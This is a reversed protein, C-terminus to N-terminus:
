WRTKYYKVELNTVFDSVSQNAPNIKLAEKYSKISNLTDKTEFYTKGLLVHFLESNPNEKLKMRFFNIGINPNTRTYLDQLVEYPVTFDKKKDHKIALLLYKEATLVDGLRFYAIGLNCIVEKKTTDRKYALKLYPLAEAPNREFTLYMFSLNNYCGGCGSDTQIAKKLLLEAERIKRVKDEDKILQAKKPDSINIILQSTTLLSLKVSEPYKKIDTEFLVTKSKWEKNRVVIIYAFLVFVLAPLAKQYPKLDSYTITKKPVAKYYFLFYVAILSFGISAFFAFRDAVIGPAPILLNLYMSLSLGFFAVGYWLLDAKKFRTFFVYAMAGFGGLGLLAFMSTFSYVAVTNYGYYCAMKSPFILMKVYFGLSNLAASLKLSLTKEFFLPSEFYNFTRVQSVSRDILFHKTVKYSYYSVFILVVTLVIFKVNLKGLKYLVLPVIIVFPIVDFKSLFALGFYFLTALIYLWNKSETFKTISIFGLVSFIFCLLIDRNKLSAVVEAHIPLIAFIVVAFFLVFPPYDKFLLSFLKLLLLLCAAYLLINVLHSVVLNEGFFQHQLAFSVKVIPRYEYNNGSEDNVHYTRFIRPISKIGKSTINEPGTVFEDDLAYGNTLTNGYLLFAILVLILRYNNKNFIKKLAM